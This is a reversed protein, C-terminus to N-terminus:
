CSVVPMDGDVKGGEQMNSAEMGNTAGKGGDEREGEHTDRYREERLIKRGALRGVQTSEDRGPMSREKIGAEEVGEKNRSMQRDGCKGEEM